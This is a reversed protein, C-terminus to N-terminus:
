NNCELERLKEAIETLEQQDYSYKERPIFEWSVDSSAQIKGLCDKNVDNTYIEFETLEFTVAKPM